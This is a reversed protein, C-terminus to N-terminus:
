AITLLSGSTRGSRKKQDKALALGVDGRGATEVLDNAM